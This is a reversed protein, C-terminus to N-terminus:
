RLWQSLSLWRHKRRWFSFSIWLSTLLIWVGSWNLFYSSWVQDMLAGVNISSMVQGTDHLMLHHVLLFAVHFLAHVLEDADKLSGGESECVHLSSFSAACSFHFYDVGDLFNLCSHLVCASDNPIRCWYYQFCLHLPNLHSIEEEGVAVDFLLQWTCSLYMFLLLRVVCWILSQPWRTVRQLESGFCHDSPFLGVFM